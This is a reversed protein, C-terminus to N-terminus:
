YFYSNSLIYKAQSKSLKIEVDRFLALKPLVLYYENSKEKIKCAKVEINKVVTGVVRCIFNTAELNYKRM